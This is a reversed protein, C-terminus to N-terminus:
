SLRYRGAALGSKLEDADMEVMEVRTLLKPEGHTEFVNGGGEKIREAEIQDNLTRAPKPVKALQAELNRPIIGNVFEAAKDADTILEMFLVDYAPSDRFNHRLQVDKRFQKGDESRQGVSMMILNKFEEMIAKGDKSAIVRKLWEELGGKKSMELEVLDAKSLHFYFDETQEEGNFDEYTITKKLL